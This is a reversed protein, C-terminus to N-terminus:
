PTSEIIRKPEVIPKKVDDNNISSAFSNHIDTKQCLNGM